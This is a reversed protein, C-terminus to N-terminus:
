GKREHGVESRQSLIEAVTFFSFDLPIIGGAAGGCWCCPQTEGQEVLFAGAQRAWTLLEANMQHHRSFCDVCSWHPGGDRCAKAKM